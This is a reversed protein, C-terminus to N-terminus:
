QRTDDHRCVWAFIIIKPPSEKPNTLNTQIHSLYKKAGDKEQCEQGQWGPRQGDPILIEAGADKEPAVAKGAYGEGVQLRPLFPDRGIRLGQELQADVAPEHCRGIRDPIIRAPHGPGQGIAPGHDAEQEPAAAGQFAQAQGPVPFHKRLISEHPFPEPQLGAGALMQAAQIAGIMQNEGTVREARGPRHPGPFQADASEALLASEGLMMHEVRVTRKEVQPDSLPRHLAGEQDQRVRLEAQHSRVLVRRLVVAKPRLILRIRNRSPVVAALTHLAIDTRKGIVIEPEDGAKGRVRVAPQDDPVADPVAAIQIPFRNGCLAPILGDPGRDADQRRVSVCIRGDGIVQQVLYRLIRSGALRVEIVICPAELASRLVQIRHHGLLAETFLYAIRMFTPDPSEDDIVAPM